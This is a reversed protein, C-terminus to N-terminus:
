KTYSFIEISIVIGVILILNLINGVGFYCLSLFLMIASSYLASRKKNKLIVIMTLFLAVSLLIFFVPIVGTTQPDIFLLLTCVSIWCITAIVIAAINSKPKQTETLRKRILRTKM